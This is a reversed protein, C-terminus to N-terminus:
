STAVRVTARLSEATGGAPLSGGGDARTPEGLATRIEASKPYARRRARMVNGLPRHAKLGHWPFFSLQDVLATLEKGQPSDIDCQPIRLEAVKHLEAIHESWVISTDEIPTHEPDVYFQVSFDFHVDGARLRNALERHLYDEHNEHGAATVGVPPHMVFKMAFPGCQIPATGAFYETAMSDVRPLLVHQTLKIAIRVAEKPDKLVEGVRQLLGLDGDGETVALVAFFQLVNRVISTLSHSTALFDQTVAQQAEDLRDEPGGPVGVLKLAIGRPQPKTDPQLDSQGNSFRVLAPYVGPQAFVGFRAAGPVDPRDTLVKFEAMVGAHIKAHFGRLPKEQAHHNIRSVVKEALQDFLDEESTTKDKPDVLPVEKWDKSATIPLM